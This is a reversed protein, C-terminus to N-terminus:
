PNRGLEELVFDRIIGPHLREIPGIFMSLENNKVKLQDSIIKSRLIMKANDRDQAMRNCAILNYDRENLYKMFFQDMPADLTVNSYKSCDMNRSSRDVTSENKPI